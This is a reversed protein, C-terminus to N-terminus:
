QEGLQNRGQCHRNFFRRRGLRALAISIRSLTLKELVVRSASHDPRLKLGDDLCDPRCSAPRTIERCGNGKM